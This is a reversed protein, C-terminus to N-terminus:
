FFEEASLTRPIVEQLTVTAGTSLNRCHTGDIAEYGREFSCIDSTRQCTLNFFHLDYVSNVNNVQCVNIDYYVDYCYPTNWDETCSGWILDPWFSLYFYYFVWAVIVFYYIM